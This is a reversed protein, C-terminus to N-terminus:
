LEVHHLCANALILNNFNQYIEWIHKKIIGSFKGCRCIGGLILRILMIGNYISLERFCYAWMTKKFSGFWAEKQKNENKECSLYLVFEIFPFAYIAHKPSLSPAAPHYAYFIWEAIAAGWAWMTISCMVAWHVWHM